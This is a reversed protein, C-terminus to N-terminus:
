TEKFSIEYLLMGKKIQSYFPKDKDRLTRFETDDVIIYSIKRSIESQHKDIVDNVLKKNESLILIDVDSEETDEGDACSGFLIIKQSFKRLDKLMEDLELLTFAVKLERLLPNEMNASYITLKGREEKIVLEEKELMRLYESATGLGIGLRRVLERTHYGERYRRGLFCIIQLSPKSLINM